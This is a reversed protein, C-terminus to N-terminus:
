NEPYVWEIFEWKDGIRVNASTSDSFKIEDYITELILAGSKSLFGIKGDKHIEIGIGRTMIEDYEFDLIFGKHKNYLAKKSDKELIIALDSYYSKISSYLPEIIIKKEDFSFYGHLGNEVFVVGNGFNQAFMNDYKIELVVDNEETILGYKGNNVVVVHRNTYQYIEDYTPEFLKELGQYLGYKKNKYTKFKGGAEHSILDFDFPIVENGQFDLVGWYEGQKALVFDNLGLLEDYEIPITLTASTDILGYKKNKVVVMHGRKFRYLGSYFREDFVLDSFLKGNRYFLRSEGNETVFLLNPEILKIAEYQFPMIVEGNKNLLGYNTSDKVSILGDKLSTYQYKIPIAVEYNQNLYGKLSGKEVPILGDKLNGIYRYGEIIEGQIDVYVKSRDELYLTTHTAKPALNVKSYKFESIIEGSPNGMAWLNGKKLFFLSDSNSNIQDYESEFIIKNNRDVVGYFGKQKIWFYKNSKSVIKDYQPEILYEENMDIVGYLDEQVIAYGNLFHSQDQYDRKNFQSGDLNIYIFRDDTTAVIAKSESFDFAYKYKFPIVIQGLTDIFGYLSVSKDEACLLGNKAEKSHVKIDGKELHKYQAKSIFPLLLLFLFIKVKM